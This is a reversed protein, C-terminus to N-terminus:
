STSPAPESFMRVVTSMGEAAMKVGYRVQNHALLPGTFLHAIKSLDLVQNGIAVGIRHESESDTSFVGYPLNQIPFHSEKEVTVWSVAM